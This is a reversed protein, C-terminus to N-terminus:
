ISSTSPDKDKQLPSRTTKDVDKNKTLYQNIKNKKMPNKPLKEQRDDSCNVTGPSQSLVRKKRDQHIIQQDNNEKESLIILKNYKIYGKKGQEKEKQLQANLKKREELVEPPYDQKIYYSTTDQLIKKNKLIEIKKGMSTFTVIIPRTKDSKRGMRTVYEIDGIHCDVKMNHVIIHLIENQLSYYSNETEEVGFFLLNKRRIINELRQIKKGQEETVKELQQQRTHLILFKEDINKNISKPINDKIEKLENAQEDLKKQLSKLIETIEEM